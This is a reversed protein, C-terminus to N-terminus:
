VEGKERHYSFSCIRFQDEMAKMAKTLFGGKGHNQKSTSLPYSRFNGRSICRGGVVEDLSKSTKACLSGACLALRGKGVTGHEIHGFPVLFSIHMRDLGEGGGGFFAFVVGCGGGM